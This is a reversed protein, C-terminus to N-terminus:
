PVRGRVAWATATLSREGDPAGSLYATRVADRVRTQMAPELGAVYSGVPGQGGLLPEWYDAFSSFDMRITLSDRVVDDLGAARWLDVMGDPLGLPASFIRDRTAAAVPDLTAITDWLLRQYVLGGRFDWVASAVIGGPRVVRCMEALATAPEKLFNMVICSFAAAFLDDPLDLAAADQRLFTADACDERARAFDLYADAVDIGTIAREPDSARVAAVVSGTGTGIDLVPGEPLPSVFAILPDALRRTWRGIFRQYAAGDTAAYGGSPSATM